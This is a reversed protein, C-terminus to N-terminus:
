WFFFVHWLQEVIGLGGPVALHAAVLRPRDLLPKRVLKPQLGRGCFRRPDDPPSPHSLLIWQELTSAWASWDDALERCAERAGNRDTYEALYRGMDGHERHKHEKNAHKAQTWTATPTQKPPRGSGPDARDLKRPRRFSSTM